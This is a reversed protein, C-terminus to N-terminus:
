KLTGPFQKQIIPRTRENEEQGSATRRKSYKVSVVSIRALGENLSLTVWGICLHSGKYFAINTLLFSKFDNIRLIWTLRRPVNCRQVGSWTPVYTTRYHVRYYQQEFDDPNTQFKFSQLMSAHHITRQCTAYTSLVLIIPPLSPTFVITVFSNCARIFVIFTWSCIVKRSKWCTDGEM